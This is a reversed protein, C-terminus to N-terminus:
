RGAWHSKLIGEQRLDLWLSREGRGLLLFARHSRCARQAICSGNIIGKISLIPDWRSREAPEADSGAKRSRVEGQQAPEHSQM